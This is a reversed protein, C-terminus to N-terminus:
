LISYLILRAVNVMKQREAATQGGHGIAEQLEKLMGQIMATQLANLRLERHHELLQVLTDRIADVESLEHVPPDSWGPLTDSRGLDTLLRLILRSAAALKGGDITEPRDDPTHYVPNEGTSLFLFPIQRHRFPGYDSRDYALVDNGIIKLTLPGDEGGAARRLPARLAPAFETGMAFLDNRCVGGLARSLMDSTVMLRLDALPKPPHEVFYKSGLLGAEELDFAVFVLTRRPAEDPGARSLCRVVELLMAVSSANDDAGPYVVGDRIGLHDYHVGLLIWEGALQPDSGDLVAGLNQGIVRGSPEDIVNQTFSPGFLPKLGLNSWADLIYRAARRAGPGRRGEFAPGALTRVHALLAAEVPERPADDARTAVPGAWAVLVTTVILWCPCNRRNTMLAGKSGDRGTLRVTV